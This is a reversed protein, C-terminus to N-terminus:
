FVPPIRLSDYQPRPVYQVEWTKHLQMSAAKIDLPPERLMEFPIHFPAYDYEYVVTVRRLSSIERLSNVLEFTLADDPLELTHLRPLSRLPSMDSCAFLSGHEIAITELQVVNALPECENYFLAELHLSRLQPCSHLWDGSHTGIGHSTTLHRLNPLAPLSEFDEDTLTKGELELHTLSSLAAVAELTMRGCHEHLELVKLRPKSEFMGAIVADDTEVLSLRLEVLETLNQIARMGVESIPTITARRWRDSYPVFGLGVLTRVEPFMAVQTLSEDSVVGLDISEVHRFGNLRDGFHKTLWEEDTAFEYQSGHRELYRLAELRRIAPLVAISVIAVISLLLLPIWLKWTPLLRV